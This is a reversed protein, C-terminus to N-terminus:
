TIALLLKGWFEMCIKELRLCGEWSLSSPEKSFCICTAPVNRNLASLDDPKIQWPRNPGGELLLIDSWMTDYCAAKIQWSKKIRCRTGACSTLHNKTPDTLQATLLSGSQNGSSAHCSGRWKSAEWHGLKLLCRQMVAFVATSPFWDSLQSNDSMQSKIQLSELLVDAQTSPM